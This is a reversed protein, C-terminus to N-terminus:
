ATLLTVRASTQEIAAWEVGNELCERYISDYDMNGEFIEAFVASGDKVPM